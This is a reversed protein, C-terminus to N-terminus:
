YPKKYTNTRRITQYTRNWTDILILTVCGKGWNLCKKDQLMQPTPIKYLSIKRSLEGAM